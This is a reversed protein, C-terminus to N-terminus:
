TQAAHGLGAHSSAGKLSLRRHLVIEVTAMLFLLTMVCASSFCYICFADLKFHAVYQLYWSYGVGGVTVLWLLGHLRRVTIESEATMKMMSLSLLVIYGILGLLAVPINHLPGLSIHAWSSEAVTSCGGDSTCPLDVHSRHAWWLTGAICAGVFSFVAEFFNLRAARTEISITDSSSM